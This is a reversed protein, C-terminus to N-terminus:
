NGGQNSSLVSQGLILGELKRALRTHPLGKNSLPTVLISRLGLAKAGLVDTFLQDGVMATENPATGLRQLGREFAFRFPKGVLSLGEVELVKAWRRVREPKGNSLLLVAINAGKLERIWRRFGLRMRTSNSALLTDDLDLLLGRIGQARLYDPTLETVMEIRMDPKLRTRVKVRM